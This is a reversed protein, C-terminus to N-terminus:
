TPLNNIAEIFLEIERCHNAHGTTKWITFTTRLCLL